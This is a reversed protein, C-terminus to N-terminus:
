MIPAWKEAINSPCLIEWDAMASGIGTMHLLNLCDRYLLHLLCV